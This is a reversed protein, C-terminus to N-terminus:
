EEPISFDDYDPEFPYIDEYEAMERDSEPAQPILGTMDNASATAMNYDDEYDIPYDDFFDKDFM